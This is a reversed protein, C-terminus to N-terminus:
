NFRITCISIFGIASKMKILPGDKSDWMCVKWICFRGTSGWLAVRLEWKTPFTWFGFYFWHNHVAIELPQFFRNWIRGGTPLNFVSYRGHFQFLNYLRIYDSKCWLRLYGSILLLMSHAYFGICWRMVHQLRASRCTNFCPGRWIPM